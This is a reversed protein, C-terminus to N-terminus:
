GYFNPAADANADLSERFQKLLLKEDAHLLFSLTALVAKTFHALVRPSNDGAQSHTVMALFTAVVYFEIFANWGALKRWKDIMRGLQLIYKNVNPDLMFMRMEEETRPILSPPHGRRFVASFIHSLRRM